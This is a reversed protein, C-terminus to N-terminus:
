ANLKYIKTKSLRNGLRIKLYKEKDLSRRWMFKAYNKYLLKWTITNLDQVDNILKQGTLLELTDIDKSNIKPYFSGEKYKLSGRRGIEIAASIPDYEENQINGIFSTYVPNVEIINMGSLCVEKRIKNLILERNWLNNIKRNVVKKGNDKFNLEEIIFSYVKYHRLKNFLRSLSYLIESKRKRTQKKNSENDSSLGLNINNKSYDIYFKEIFIQKDDKLDFICIGIGDPNLDISCYRNKIKKLSIEEELRQYEFSFMDKIVQKDTINKDKIEKSLRKNVESVKQTIGLYINLDFSLCFYDNNFDVTIPIEKNDILYQLKKFNIRKDKYNHLDIICKQGFKPKYIIQNNILNFDIFRNGYKNSEGLIYINRKRSDKWEKIKNENRIGKNADYTISQLLSRKGFVEKNKISKKLFEIKNLWKFYNKKELKTLSNKNNLDDILKKLNDIKLQKNKNNILEIDKKTKVQNIISRIEIDNVNFKQKIENIFNIDESLEFFHYIYNFCGTYTYIKDNILKQNDLSKIKIKLTIIKTLEKKNFDM